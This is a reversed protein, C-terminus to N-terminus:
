IRAPGHRGSDTLSLVNTMASKNARAPWTADLGQGLGDNLRDVGLLHGALMPTRPVYTSLQENREM